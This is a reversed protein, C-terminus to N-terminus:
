TSTNSLGATALAKPKDGSANFSQTSFSISFILAVNNSKSLTDLTAMSDEIKGQSELTQAYAFANSWQQNRKDRWHKLTEFSVAITLCVVVFAVIQVGYKKWFAKLNDNHVDESVEKFFVDTFDLEQESINKKKM